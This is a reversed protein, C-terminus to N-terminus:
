TLPSLAAHIKCDLSAPCPYLDPNRSTSATGCAKGRLRLFDRSAQEPSRQTQSLSQNWSRKSSLDGLTYKGKKKKITTFWPAWLVFSTTASELGPISTMPSAWSAKRQSDCSRALVQLGHSYLFPCPPHTVLDSTQGHSKSDRLENLIGVSKRKSLVYKCLALFMLCSRQEPISFAQRGSNSASM